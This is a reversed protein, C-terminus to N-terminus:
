LLQVFKYVEWNCGTLLTSFLILLTIHCIEHCVAIMTLYKGM